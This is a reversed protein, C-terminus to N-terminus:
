AIRTIRAKQCLPYRERLPAILRELEEASDGYFYLAVETPLERFGVYRGADGLAETAMEIVTDADTSEYVEDPLDTANLYVGIGEARGVEREAHTTEDILKSGKPTGVAELLDVLRDLTEPRADALALELEVFPIEEGPTLPTGGGTVDGLGAAAMRERIPDEFSEFRDMPELRANLRLTMPHREGGEETQESM